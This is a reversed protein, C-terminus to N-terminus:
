PVGATSQALSMADNVWRSFFNSICSLSTESLEFAYSACLGDFRIRIYAPLLIQVVRQIRQRFGVMFFKTVNERDSDFNTIRCSTISRELPCNLLHTINSAATSMAISTICNLCAHCAVLHHFHHFFLTTFYALSCLAWALSRSPRFSSKRNPHSTSTTEHSVFWAM